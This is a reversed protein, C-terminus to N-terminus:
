PFARQELTIWTVITQRLKTRNAIDQKTALFLTPVLYSCAPVGPRPWVQQCMRQYTDLVQQLEPVRPPLNNGRNGGAPVKELREYLADHFGASCEPQLVLYGEIIFRRMANDDLLVPSAIV